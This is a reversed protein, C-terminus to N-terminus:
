RWSRLLLARTPSGSSRRSHPTSRARELFDVAAAFIAACRWGARTQGTLLAHQCAPSQYRRVEAAVQDRMWGAVDTEVLGSESADGLSPTGAAAGDADGATHAASGDSAM